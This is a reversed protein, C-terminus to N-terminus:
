SGSESLRRISRRRRDGVSKKYATGGQWNDFTMRFDDRRANLNMLRIEVNATLFHKRAHEALPDTLRLGTWERFPNGNWIYQLGNQGYRDPNQITNQSEPLEFGVAVGTWTAGIPPRTNPSYGISFAKVGGGYQEGGNGRDFFDSHLFVMGYKMLGQYAINVYHQDAYATGSNGANGQILATQLDMGAAVARGRFNSDTVAQWHGDLAAYTRTIEWDTYNDRDPLEGMGGPEPYDRYQYLLSGSKIKEVNERSLTTFSPFDPEGQSDLSFCEGIGQAHASGICNIETHYVGPPRDFPALGAMPPPTTPAPTPTPAPAPTPPNPMATTPPAGGGGSCAGLAFAALAAAISARFM